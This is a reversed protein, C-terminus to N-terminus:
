CLERTRLEGDEVCFRGRQDAAHAGSRRCKINSKVCKHYIVYTLPCPARVCPWGGGFKFGGINKNRRSAPWVALNLSQWYKRGYPIDPLMRRSWNKILGHVLLWTSLSHRHYNTCGHGGKKTASYAGNDTAKHNQSCIKGTFTSNNIENTISLIYTCLLIIEGLGIM